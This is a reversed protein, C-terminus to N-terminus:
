PVLTGAATSWVWYGKGNFIEDEDGQDPISKSWQNESTNFSYAVKWKINGFYDDAEGKESPTKGAARQAVDVVGLLNWGEIVDATPLTSSTDTEPILTKISEFATTQVWYGYGGVIDTLTGRWTGNDNVATLWADDQYALVIGAMNTSAMVAGVSSDLPTGPVSVLNWGPILSVSYPKRAVAEFEYEANVTNGADDQGTVKLEYSDTGLDRAALTYKRNTSATVWGSVDSGNLTISTIQVADHSDGFSGLSATTTYKGYEGKEVGFDITIFPNGSETKKTEVGTEPALEFKPDSLDTDIEVLLGAAELKALDAKDDAEPQSGDRTWGTTTGINSSDDEVVVIVAYVGDANGVENNSYTRSWSNEAADTNLRQGSDPSGLKYAKKEATSGNDLVEAFFVRPLRRPEEDSTVHLTIEGNNRIVPRDGVASTLTVTLAPAIRDAPTVEDQNSPNGALDRVAGGFMSVLPTEDPALDAALQLYLRAKPTQDICRGAIDKPYEDKTDVPKGTQDCNVKDTLITAATVTHGEVLFKEFDADSLADLNNDTDEFTVAISSRDVIETKKNADYAIGTRADKFEPSAVDVTIGFDQPDSKSSDADTRASNGARDEAVLYWKYSGPDKSTTMDLFYSVGPTSGRQRWGNNGADDVDDGDLMVKIDASGGDAVSRPETSQANDGDVNYPRPDFDGQTYDYEGDHALGSDNDTVLFRIKVSQSGLYTGDSPFIESFDPGEGDVTLNIIGSQGAVTVTLTDGHRAPLQAPTNTAAPTGDRYCKGDEAPKGSAVVELYNVYPVTGVGQDATPRTGGTIVSSSYLPAKVSKGSRDNKVTAVACWLNDDENTTETTTNDLKGNPGAHEVLNAVALGAPAVTVHLRNNAGTDNSVYLKDRFSSATRNADADDDTGPSTEDGELVEVTLHDIVRFGRTDNDSSALAPLVILLSLAVAMLTAILPIKTFRM